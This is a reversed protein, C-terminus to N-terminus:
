TREEKHSTSRPPMTWAVNCTRCVLREKGIRCKVGEMGFFAFPALTGENFWGYRAAAVADIQPPKSTYSVLKFTQLRSLFDARSDPDYTAYKKDANEGDVVTSGAGESTSQKARKLVKQLNSLSASRSYLPPFLQVVRTDHMQSSM